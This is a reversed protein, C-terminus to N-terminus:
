NSFNFHLGFGPRGPRIRELVRVAGTCRDVRLLYWSRGYRAEVEVRDGRLERIIEIDRFGHDRLGRYIERDRLCYRWFDPRGHRLERNGDSQIGFSLGSGGKGGGIDLNFNLSPGQQAVAPAAAVSAVGLAVAIVAARGSNKITALITTM